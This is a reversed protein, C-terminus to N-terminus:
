LNKRLIREIDTRRKLLRNIEDQIITPYLTGVMQDRLEQRIKLQNEIEELVESKEVIEIDIM